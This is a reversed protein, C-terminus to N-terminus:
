LDPVSHDMFKRITSNSLKAVLHDYMFSPMITLAVQPTQGAKLVKLLDDDSMGVVNRGNVEMIQHDITLGNRAASSDEVLKTIKGKKFLFGMNGASDRVLSITRSFPRDRIVLDITAGDAKQLVKLAKDSSLGAMVQGNVQLIQDGVRVGALAAPSDAWVCSVFIGRSIEKVAIGMKGDAGKCLIIPRVGQKIEAKMMNKAAETGPVTLAGGQPQHLVLQRQAEMMDMGMYDGLGAEEFLASYLSGSMPSPSRKADTPAPLPAGPTNSAIADRMGAAEQYQRKSMADVTLSEIDPYLHAM